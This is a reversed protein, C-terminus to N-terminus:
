AELGHKHLFTQHLDGTGQMLEQDSLHNVAQETQPKTVTDQTWQRLKWITGSLVLCLQKLPM